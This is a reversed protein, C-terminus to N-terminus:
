LGTKSMGPVGSQATLLEATTNLATVETAFTITDTTKLASPSVPTSFGGSWYAKVSGQSMGGMQSRPGSLNASTQAAVTDSAFTVKDTVATRNNAPLTNTNLGGAAYGADVGNSVGIALSRTESLTAASAAMTDTSFTLIDVLNCLPGSFGGTQGGLVYGKTGGDGVTAGSHQTRPMNASTQAASTDTAFTLKDGTDVQVSTNPFTSTDLTFGGSYYAKTSRESLSHGQGRPTSLYATSTATATDTAFVLKYANQGTTTQGGWWYGADVSNSASRDGRNVAAAASTVASVADTAFVIAQGSAWYGDYSSGCCACGPYFFRQQQQPLQRWQPQTRVFM